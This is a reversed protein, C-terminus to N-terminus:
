SWGNILVDLTKSESERLLSQQDLVAEMEDHMEGDDSQAVYSTYRSFHWDLRGTTKMEIYSYVDSHLPESVCVCTIMRTSLTTPVLLGKLVGFWIKGSCVEMPAELHDPRVQGVSRQSGDIYTLLLGVIGNGLFAAWSRCANVTRVGHLPASTRFYNYNYNHLLPMDNPIPLLIDIQGTWTTIEGHGLWVQLDTTKEFAVWTLKEYTFKKSAKSQSKRWFSRTDIGLVYSRHKNTRLILTELPRANEGHKATRLWLELVREGHDIPVYIGSYGHQGFEDVHSARLDHLKVIGRLAGEVIYFYYGCTDPANWDIAQIAEYYNLKRDYGDCIAPPQPFTDLNRPFTAWRRLDWRPSDDETKTIDLGRLKIGDSNLRLCFPAMQRRCCIVWHLGSGRHTSPSADSDKIVIRRIGRYDEAFYISFTSGAYDDPSFLVEDSLYEQFRSVSAIYRFGEIEVYRVWLPYNGDLPIMTSRAPYGDDLPTTASSKNRREKELWLDRIIQTAREQTCYSAITQCIEPPLRSKLAHELDQAISNRLWRDRQSTMSKPPQIFDSISGTIKYVRELRPNIRISHNNWIKFEHGVVEVCKVHFTREGGRRPEIKPVTYEGEWRFPLRRGVSEFICVPDGPEFYFRCLGCTPYFLPIEEEEDEESDDDSNDS